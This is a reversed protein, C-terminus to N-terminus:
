GSASEHVTVGTLPAACPFGQDALIRQVEVCTAERGNQSPRSKVVVERGDTLRLGLVESMHEAHHLLAAPTAGLHDRCWTPVWPPLNLLRVRDLM